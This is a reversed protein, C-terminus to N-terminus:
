NNLVIEKGLCIRYIHKVVCFYHNYLYSISGPGAKLMM